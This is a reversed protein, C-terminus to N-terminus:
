GGGRRTDVAALAAEGDIGPRMNTKGLKAAHWNCAAAAVTIIRHLQKNPEGGPNHLAKGALYGILWFWDADTKGADHESPWRARQHAAEIAVARGFDHIEPADILGAKEVLARVLDLEATYAYDGKQVHSGGIGEDLTLMIASLRARERDREDRAEDAMEEAKALKATTAAHAEREVCRICATPGGFVACRCVRCRRITGGLFAEDGGALAREMEDNTPERDKLRAIEENAAALDRQLQDRQNALIPWLICRECGAGPPTDSSVADVASKYGPEYEARLQAIEANAAALQEERMALTQQLAVNDAIAGDLKAREGALLLTFRDVDSPDGSM